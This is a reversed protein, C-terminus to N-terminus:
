EQPEDAPLAGQYVPEDLGHQFGKGYYLFLREQKESGKSIPFRLIVSAEGYHPKFFSPHLLKGDADYILSSDVIPKVGERQSAKVAGGFGSLNPIRTEDFVLRFEELELWRYQREEDTMRLKIAVVDDERSIREGELIASSPRDELQNSMKAYYLSSGLAIVAVALFLGPRVSTLRWPQEGVLLEEHFDEPTLGLEEFANESLLSLFAGAWIALAAVSCVTSVFFQLLQGALGFPQPIAAYVFALPVVVAAWYLVFVQLCPLMHQGVLQMSRSIGFDWVPV